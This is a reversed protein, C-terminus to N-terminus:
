QDKPKPLAKKLREIEREYEAKVKDDVSWTLHHSIVVPTNSVTGDVRAALQRINGVYDAVFRRIEQIPQDAFQALIATLERYQSPVATGRLQETWILLDGYVAIYRSALHSIRGPDGPTGPPGFARDYHDAVSSFLQVFTAGIVQLEDLQMKLFDFFEPKYVAVGRRPAYGLLYDEYKADLANLELLLTGAFLRYEWAKPKDVILTALGERSEPVYDDM